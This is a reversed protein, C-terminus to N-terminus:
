LATANVAPMERVTGAAAAIHEVLDMESDIPTDYVLDKMAGWFFFDMPTLDSSKAPWSIPGRKRDM